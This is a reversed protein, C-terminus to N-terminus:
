QNILKKFEYKGKINENIFKGKSEAQKFAEFLDKNVNEYVYLGSTYQVYLKNEESDFGIKKINSSVVEELIIKKM